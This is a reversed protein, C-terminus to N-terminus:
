LGIGPTSDACGTGPRRTCSYLSAFGRGALWAASEQRPVSHQPIIHQLTYLNHLGHAATDVHSTRTDALTPGDRGAVGRQEPCLVSRSSERPSPLQPQARCPLPTHVTSKLRRLTVTAMLGCIEHRVFANESWNADPPLPHMAPWQASLHM